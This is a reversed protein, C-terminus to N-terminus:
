KLNLNRQRDHPSPVEKNAYGVIAQVDGDSFARWGNRDRSPEKVKGEKLWRLLTEKSVGAREAVDKTRYIMKNNM